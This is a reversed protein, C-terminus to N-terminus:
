DVRAVGIVILSALHVVRHDMLFRPQDGSAHVDRVYDTAYIERTFVFQKNGDAAATVVCATQSNAIVTQYDIESWDFVRSDIGCSAGDCGAASADPAVNIVGSM